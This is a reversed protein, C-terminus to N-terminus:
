LAPTLLRLNHSLPTLSALARGDPLQLDPALSALPVLVFDRESLGPHPITLRPSHWQENGYLLLDLDLTREGWRRQRLRGQCQEIAQLADLLVEPSLTTDLAAVANIYDPQDQPGMPSSQYLASVGALHSDPLAALRHLAQWIQRAPSALNAGLGIYARKSM